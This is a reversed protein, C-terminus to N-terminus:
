KAILNTTDKYDKRDRTHVIQTALAECTRAQLLKIMNKNKKENTHDKWEQHSFRTFQPRYVTLILPLQYFYKVGGGGQFHQM